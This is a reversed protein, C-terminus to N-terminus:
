ERVEGKWAAQYLALIEEVNLAKANLMCCKDKVADESLLQLEEQTKVYETLTPFDIEKLLQMMKKSASLAGEGLTM